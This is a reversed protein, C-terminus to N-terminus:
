RRGDRNAQHYEFLTAGALIAIAREDILDATAVCHPCRSTRFAHASAGITRPEADLIRRVLEEHEVPADIEHLQHALQRLDESAAKTIFGRIYEQAVAARVVTPMQRAWADALEVPTMGRLMALETQDGTPSPDQKTSRNELLIISGIGSNHRDPKHEKPLRRHLENFVDETLLPDRAHDIGSRLLNILHGSFLTYPDKDGGADAGGDIDDRHRAKLVCTQREPENALYEPRPLPVVLDSGGLAPALGCNCCDLILIKSTAESNRMREYVHRLGLYSWVQNPRSRGLALYIDDDNAHRAPDAHGVFYVLLTDGPGLKDAGGDGKDLADLAPMVDFVDEPDRVHTCPNRWMPSKDFVDRLAEASRTITPFEKFYGPYEYKGSSILLARRRPEAATM